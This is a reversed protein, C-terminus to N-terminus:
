IPFDSRLMRRNEGLINKYHIDAVEQGKGKLDTHHRVTANGRSCALCERSHERRNPGGLEHGRRCHTKFAQYHTGHEVVSDMINESRTGYRLNEARNNTRNGDNHCVDYDLPREGIFHEAVLSHVTRVERVDNKRLHVCLYGDTRLNQKMEKGKIPQSGYIAHPVERDLSRVRGHNSVQYYGEYENIDKWEEM